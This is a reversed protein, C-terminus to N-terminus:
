SGGVRFSVAVGFGITAAAIALMAATPFFGLAAVVSGPKALELLALSVVPIAAVVAATYRAQATASRADARARDRARFAEAIERLLTVLDGGSRSHLEIAGTISEIRSSNTRSRMAALADAVSVGLNLDAALSKAESAIPEPTAVASSLLAARVSGGASLSSAVALAFDRAGEDIRAAYRDRRQRLVFRFLPPTAAVFLLAGIPGLLSFGAAGVIATAALLARRQGSRGEVRGEDLILRALERWQSASAGVPGGLRDVSRGIAGTASACVLSYMGLAVAAGGVFVILLREGSM